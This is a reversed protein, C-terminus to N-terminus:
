EDKMVERIIRAVESKLEENETQLVEIKQLYFDILSSQTDKEAQLRQLQKYYCNKRGECKKPNPTNKLLGGEGLYSQDCYPNDYHMCEAVNVGDIIVEKDM